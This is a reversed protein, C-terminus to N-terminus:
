SDLDTIWAVIAAACEDPPTESTDVVVDYEVGRHVHEAQQRAMGVTRDARQRERAEAVAPQCQV